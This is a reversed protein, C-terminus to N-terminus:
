RLRKPATKRELAKSYQKEMSPFNLIGTRAGTEKSLQCSREKVHNEGENKRNATYNLKIYAVLDENLFVYGKGIKAAKLEGSSVLARITSPEAKLFEAAQQTSLTQM